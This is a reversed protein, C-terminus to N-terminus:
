KGEKLLSAIYVTKGGPAACCDLVTDGKKIQLAKVAAMSAESQVSCIGNNLYKPEGSIYFCDDFYLSESGKLEEKIKNIDAKNKDVRVCTRHEEEYSLFMEAEKFGIDDILEKVFFEPYSYKKSLYEIKNEPYKIEEKNRSINRLVGNIYGKLMGKGIKKAIDVSTSVAANDPVKSMYLLQYVGLRLINKVKSNIKGKAFLSIVYDLNILKDLTGYVLACIFAKDRADFDKLSNKLTLNAYKKNQIIDDLLYFAQLRAKDDSM